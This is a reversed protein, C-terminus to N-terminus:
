LGPPNHGAVMSYIFLQLYFYGYTLGTLSAPEADECFSLRPSRPGHQARVSVPLCAITLSIQLDITTLPITDIGASQLLTHCISGYQIGISRCGKTSERLSISSFTWPMQVLYFIDYSYFLEKFVYYSNCTKIDATDASSHLISRIM